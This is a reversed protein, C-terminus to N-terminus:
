LRIDKVANRGFRAQLKRLIEPRWTRDLEYRVSSQMVEVHLVGNVLRSPRSHEALFEGVVERWAALIDNENIRETLGLRTVLSRIAEAVAVVPRGELKEPLGRWEEIALRRLSKSIM